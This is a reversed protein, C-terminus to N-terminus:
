LEQMNIKSLEFEARGVRALKLIEDILFQMKDAGVLVRSLLNKGQEDLSNNKLLFLETYSKISTLPTRLDHSITYSFTDLEEYALKLRENLLRIENATKNIANNIKERVKLVGSIETSTWNISTNAVIEAWTAFSNRPSIKVEGTELTEIQKDPNGAWNVTLLQEPKFWVILEGMDKSLLSVLIGSGVDAFAEAPKYTASLQHTYYVSEKVTLKLWNLLSELQVANPVNGLTHVKKEFLIAVGTASTADLLTTSHSTLATVINPDKELNASLANIATQYLQDHENAEETQRYELASSLINGILKSGERAKYDIFKPSYNHCAILGWLEGHAIL